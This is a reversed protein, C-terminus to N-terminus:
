TPLQATRVLNAVLGPFDLGNVAAALPVLGRETMGPLTNVELVRLRGDADLIMDTRSLGRLGLTRHVTLAITRAHEAIEDPIPAPCIEEAGDAAYKEHYDFFGASKPRIEVVPLAVPGGQERDEVVGVTLERGAVYEEVMLREAGAVLDEIASLAEGEDRALKVELTSGGRPNKLVLPFGFREAWAEIRGRRGRVLEDVPIVDFDPTDIGHYRFVEKARVKDFAVASGATDSGAYPIGAAALVAQVTGDEGFRGHLIPLAVDVGWERLAVVGECAGAHERWGDTDHPDFPQGGSPPTWKRPAVRWAGDKTIVVPRVQFLEPSLAAVVNQGGQLSVEHESSPGGMLVAVRLRDSKSVM